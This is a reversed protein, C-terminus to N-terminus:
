ENIIKIFERIGVLVCLVDCIEGTIKNTKEALAGCLDGCGGVVGEDLLFICRM